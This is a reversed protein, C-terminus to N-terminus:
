QGRQSGADKSSDSPSTSPASRLQLWFFRVLDMMANLVVLPNNGTPEGDTRPYHTVGVQRIVMGHRHAQTLIEASVFIGESRITIRDFISKRYIKFACDIDRLRLGFLIRVTMNFIAANLRRYWPDQRNIRCGSVIDAGDLLPVLRDIENLDFQLDGDTYFILPHRAATFGSRLAAGYGMNKPHHIVRLRPERAAMADALEGTRDTSGDDVYIIEYDDARPGFASVIADVTKEVNEEENYAPVIVSIAPLTAM